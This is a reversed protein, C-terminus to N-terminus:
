GNPRGDADGNKSVEEDDDDDVVAVLVVKLELDGMGTLSHTDVVRLHAKKNMKLPQNFGMEAPIVKRM